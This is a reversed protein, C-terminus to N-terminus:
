TLILIPDSNPNRNIQAPGLALRDHLPRLQVNNQMPGWRSDEKRKKQAPGLALRDHLPRLQVNNQMPGARLDLGASQGGQALILLTNKQDCYSLYSDSDSFFCGFIDCNECGVCRTM